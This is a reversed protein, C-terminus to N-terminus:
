DEEPCSSSLAHLICARNVFSNRTCRPSIAGIRAGPRTRNGARALPSREDIRRLCDGRLRKNCAVLTGIATGVHARLKPDSFRQSEETKEGPRCEARSSCCRPHVYPLNAPGQRVASLFPQYNRQTRSLDEDQEGVRERRRSSNTGSSNCRTASSLRRWARRLVRKVRCLSLSVVIKFPDFLRM